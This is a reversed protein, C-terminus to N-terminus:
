SNFEDVRGEYREFISGNEGAYSMIGKGHRQDDVFSGEYRDGEAYCYIGEGNM